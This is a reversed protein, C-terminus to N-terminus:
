QALSKVLEKYTESQKPRIMEYDPGNVFAQNEGIRKILRTYTKDENVKALADQLTKLRDEPIGRPAMIVRAMQGIDGSYGLDGFSPVGEFHSKVGGSALVRVNDSQALITSPFQFTFDAEAALFGRMSPGGGKYPVMTVKIGAEKFFQMAPVHVAGWVGSHAFKLKSPNAKAFDVLDQLTKFPSDARVILSADNSNIQAVTVFDKTTDYPLKKVHQQLQDYYNHTFLLTYGDAPATAAAATGTQGSAGPMLKVIVANGLYEPIVSTFVRANLDHSGGAGLPVILTIPKEPFEAKAGGVGFGFVLALGIFLLLIKRITM